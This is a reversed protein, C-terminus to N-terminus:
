VWVESVDVTRVDMVDIDILWDPSSSRPQPDFGGAPPSGHVSASREAGFSGWRLRNRDKTPPDLLGTEPSRVAVHQDVCGRASSRLLNSSM